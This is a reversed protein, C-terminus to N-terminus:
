ECARKRPRDAVKLSIHIRELVIRIVLTHHLQHKEHHRRDPPKERVCNRRPVLPEDVFSVVMVVTNIIHKRSMRLAHAHYDLSRFEIIFIGSQAFVPTLSHGVHVWLAAVHQTNDGIGSVPEPRTRLTDRIADEQAVCPRQRSPNASKHPRARPAFPGTPPLWQSITYPM